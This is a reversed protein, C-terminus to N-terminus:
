VDGFHHTDPDAQRWSCDMRHQTKLPPHNLPGNLRPLGPYPYVVLWCQEGGMGFGQEGASATTCSGTEMSIRAMHTGVLSSSCATDVAVSPGKFGYAYSLRGAAM